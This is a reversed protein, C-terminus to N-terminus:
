PLVPVFRVLHAPVDGAFTLVVYRSVGALFCSGGSRRTGERISLDAGIREVLLTTELDCLGGTWGVVVVRPRGPPNALGPNEVEFPIEKPLLAAEVVLGSRDDIVVPLDQRLEGDGPITLELTHALPVFEGPESGDGGCASGLAAVLVLVVALRRRMPRDECPPQARGDNGGLM